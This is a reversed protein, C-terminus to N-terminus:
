RLGYKKLSNLSIFFISRLNDVMNLKNLKKNIKWVWYLNRVRNSQVSNSRIKYSTLIRPFCYAFKYKKLLSCKFYYDDCSTSNTFMIKKDKPNKIIMTSTAISTDKIFSNFNYTLLTYINKKISDKITRYFTYTFSYNNKLMFLMQNKLKNKEWIDDSDIFAIYKSKTMRLALNRCYGAGKNKSNFYIKIKSNKIQNLIEKTKYNSNDDVIILEWNKYNQKLISNLTSKITKESNYNPLIITIKPLKKIIKKM